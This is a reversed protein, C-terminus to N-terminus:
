GGRRATHPRKRVPAALADLITRTQSTPSGGLASSFTLTLKVRLGAHGELANQLAREAPPSPTFTLRVAPPVAHAIAGAAFRTTPSPCARARERRAGAECASRTRSAGHSGGRFTLLWDFRGPQAIAAILSIAGGRRNVRPGALLTFTSDPVLAPALSSTFSLTASSGSSTSSGAAPAARVYFSQEVPAAAEYEDDGAQNAAITCEGAGAFSVTAGNLGCVTPTVSAFSIPLGSSASAAIAYAAGGVLASSPASSLVTIAQPRKSVTFSQRAAPAPDYSEDGGQHAEITCTGAAAFTVTSASLTCVSPTATALSVELGSSATASVPYPAGGITAGTPPSSGFAITQSGKGVAFSQQAQPAAKYTGDGGQDADVTCTGAGIFTVSAGEVSCVFPAASTFSVVLGSSSGAAVVYPPAGVTAAGPARSSFAIAQSAKGPEGTPTFARLGDPTGVGSPGDYGPGAVCIAAGSCSAGAEAVSCGSRGEVTAERTCEGDSGSVVDHLSHPHAAENEYLTKAPYEVGGAGGALAFTAAIIPSAVSTGFAHFWGAHDYSDYVAVGGRYRPYRDAEAAIDAVARDTGCGVSSWDAVELQWSPAPFHSCGSGTTGSQTPSRFGSWVTERAWRRGRAHELRTGGVAVVHPSSAPYDAFGRQIEEPQVEGGEPLEWNDYGYDGSAATIVIGPHDFAGSDQRPEETYWSNSIETAGMAVARDEAIELDALRPSSAEVLLIRCNQCLAHAIEVDISIEVAAEESPEPLRGSKGSENVKTFCGDAATCAPLGFEADYHALDAEVAPDDYWDVLAITQPTPAMTPLGYAAELDSPRLGTCGASPKEPACEEEETAASSAGRASNTASASELQASSSAGVGRPAPCSAYAAYGPPPFACGLRPSFRAGGWSPDGATGGAGAAAPLMLSGLACLVLWAGAPAM